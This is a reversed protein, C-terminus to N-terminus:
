DAGAGDLFVLEAEAYVAGVVVRAEFEFVFESLVEERQEVTMLTGVTTCVGVGVEIGVQFDSVM